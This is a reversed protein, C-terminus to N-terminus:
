NSWPFKLSGFSLELAEFLKWWFAGIAFPVLYQGESNLLDLYKILWPSFYVACAAGAALHSARKWLPLEEAKRVQAVYGGCLAAVILWFYKNDQM